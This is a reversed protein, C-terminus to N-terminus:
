KFIIEIDKDNYVYIKDVLKSIVNGDYENLMICEAITTDESQQSSEKFKKNKLEDVQRQITELREKKIQRISLYEEKSCVGSRYRTYDSFSESDIKEYESTLEDIKKQINSETDNLSAKKELHELRLSAEECVADIVMQEAKDRPIFIKRCESENTMNRKVCVYKQSNIGSGSVTLMRGCYPCIFLNKGIRKSNPSIRNHRRISNAKEFVEKSVIAPIVGPVISWKSRDRKKIRKYEGFGSTEERNQILAGTYQENNLIDLVANNSWLYDGKNHVPAYKVGQKWQNQLRTPIGRANLMRAIENCNKGQIALEFIERVIKAAEEDIILRHKDKPDKKYGYCVFSATYEGNRNRNQRASKVKRSLDRSYMQYILNKFAVDMGGTMGYNKDSDYGENVAIFRIGMAPFIFEMYNGVELYDRGFRSFDKVLITEFVGAEADQIMRQFEQRKGFDTGTFGDDFYELVEYSKFEDHEGIYTYLLNRQNTISNSEDKIGAAVDEDADSLRIYMALRHKKLISMRERNGFNM